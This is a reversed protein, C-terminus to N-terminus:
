LLSAVAVVAGVLTIVAAAGLGTTVSVRQRPEGVSTSSRTKAVQLTQVVAALDIVAVSVALGLNHRVSVLTLVTVVIELFVLTRWERLMARWESAEVHDAPM